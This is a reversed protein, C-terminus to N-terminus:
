PKSSKTAPAANVNTMIVQGNSSMTRIPAFAVSVGRASMAATTSAAATTATTGAVGIAGTVAQSYPATTAAVAASGATAPASGAASASLSVAQGSGVSGGTVGVSGYPSSVSSNITDQPNVILAPPVLQGTLQNPVAVQVGAPNVPGLVRGRFGQEAALVALADTNVRTIGTYSSAMPPIGETGYSSGPTASQNPAGYSPMVSAPEGSGPYRNTTCGFAAFTLVLTFIAKRM